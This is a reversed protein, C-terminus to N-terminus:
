PKEESKPKPAFPDYHLHAAAFKSIAARVQGSTCLKQGQKGCRECVMVIRQPYPSNDAPDWQRAEYKGLVHPAHGPRWEQWESTSM